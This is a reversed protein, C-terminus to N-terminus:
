RKLTQNMHTRRGPAERELEQSSHKAKDSYIGNWRKEELGEKRVTNGMYHGDEWNVHRQIM